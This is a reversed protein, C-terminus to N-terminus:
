PSDGPPLLKQDLNVNPIQPRGTFQKRTSDFLQWTPQWEAKGLHMLKAQEAILKRHQRDVYNYPENEHFM